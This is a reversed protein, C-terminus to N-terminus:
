RCSPDNPPSVGLATQEPAVVPLTPPPASSTKISTYKVYNVPVIEASTVGGIAGENTAMDPTALSAKGQFLALIERMTDNQIRPVLVAQDGVM